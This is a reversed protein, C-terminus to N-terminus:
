KPCGRQLPTPTLAGEGEGPSMERNGRGGRLDQLPRQFISAAVGLLWLPPPHSVTRSPPPAKPVGMRPWGARFGGSKGECPAAPLSPIDPAPSEPGRLHAPAPHSRAPRQDLGTPVTNLGRVTGVLVQGQGQAPFDAHPPSVRPPAPRCGPAALM